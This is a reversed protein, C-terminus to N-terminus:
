DHITSFVKFSFARFYLPSLIGWWLFPLRFPVCSLGKGESPKQISEGEQWPAYSPSPSLPFSIFAFVWMGRSPAPFGSKSLVNSAVTLFFIVWTLVMFWIFITIYIHTCMYVYMHLYVYICAYGSYTHTHTQDLVKGKKYGSLNCTIQLERTVPLSDEPVATGCAGPVKRAKEMTLDWMTICLLRAPSQETLPSFGLM